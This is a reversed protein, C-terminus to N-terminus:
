QQNRKVQFARTELVVFLLWSIVVFPQIWSSNALSHISIALGMGLSIPFFSWGFIFLERLVAQLSQAGHRRPQRSPPFNLQLWVFIRGILVMGWVGMLVVGGWGLGSLLLVPLSTPLKSHNSRTYNDTYVPSSITLLGQGFIQRWGTLESLWGSSDSLRSQVTSVRALNGSEGPPKPIVVIAASLMLCSVIAIVQFQRLVVLTMKEFSSRFLLSQLVLAVGVSGLLAGYSARSWTLVLSILALMIWVLYRKQTTLAWQRALWWWIGVLLLGWFNPDFQTGLLRFAHNDWGLIALWRTDPVILWQVLGILIFVNAFIELANSITIGSFAKRFSPLTLALWGVSLYVGFRGVYAVPWFLDAGSSAALFWGLCIWGIMALSLGRFRLPQVWFSHLSHRFVLIVERPERVFIVGLWLVLWLDHLYFNVSGLSVRQLQGLLFLFLLVLGFWHHYTWQKLRHWHTAFSAASHDIPAKM